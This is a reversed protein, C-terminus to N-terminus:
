LVIGKETIKARYEDALAFDKEIRAKNWAKVLELSEEDLAEIKSDIGLVWMEKDLLSLLECAYQVDFERNRACTNM